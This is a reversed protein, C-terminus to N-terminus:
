FLIGEPFPVNFIKVFIGYFGASVLVATVVNKALGKVRLEAPSLSWGLVMLVIFTMTFFGVYNILSVYLIAMFLAILTSPIDWPKTEGLIAGQQYLKFAQFLLLIAALVILGASIMPVVLTEPEVEEASLSVYVVVAIGISLVALCINALVPHLSGAPLKAPKRSPKEKDSQKKREKYSVFFPWAASVVTMAILLISLPRSFLLETLGSSARSLMMSEVLGREMIPGLIVGLAIPAASLGVRAGLYAIIGLGLMLIVDFPSNRGAFAGVVSLALVVPMLMNIPLNLARAYIRSASIGIIFMMANAIFLSFIFTYTIVAGNGSFLEPGPRLSHLLLAGYLVAAQPAGPIGLTLLPVLSGEVAANNSTESAIVGDINGRGFSDRDKATRQAEQYALLGAVNGGAGPIIGVITGIISSRLLNVWRSMVFKITRITTGKTPKYLSVGSQARATEAMSLVQPVCFLGILAVIVDIGGLLDTSDFILRAEGTSPSLGITSLLVGLLGGLLGKTMSKASLSAIITLGLVGLWFYEPPGFKLSVVALVPAFFLLVVTGFMGGIGSGTASAALAEEARGQQAMPYGDFTTAIAAPAGPTNILIASISGGYMAGVYVGGLVILASAPSLSYTFPVMLAIAMTGTLGPLAGVLIGGAVASFLFVLNTIDFVNAFAPGIFEIV